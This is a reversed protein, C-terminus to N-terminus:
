EFASKVDARLADLSAASASPKKAAPAVPASASSTPPTPAQAAAAAPAGSTPAGDQAARERAEDQAVLDLARQTLAIHEQRERVERKTPGAAAAAPAEKKSAARMSTALGGALVLLGVAGLAVALPWLPQLPLPTPSPEARETM